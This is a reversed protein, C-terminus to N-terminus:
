SKTRKFMWNDADPVREFGFKRYLEHADLTRLGIGNVNSLLPHTMVAEMLKKGIGSGQFEPLVFVDMVWAFVAYDTAVRAFGVQNEHEAFAGFCLSNEMSKLVEARTRDKAWYSQNSLYDHILDVDMVSFDTQITIVENRM